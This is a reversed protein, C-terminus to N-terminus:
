RARARDGGCCEASNHTHLRRPTIELLSRTPLASFFRQYVNGVEKKLKKTNKTHKLAYGPLTRASGVDHMFAIKKTTHPKKTYPARWKVRRSIRSSSGNCIFEGVKRSSNKKYNQQEFFHKQSGGIFNTQTRASRISHCLNHRRQLM